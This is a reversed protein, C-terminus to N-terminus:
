ATRQWMYTVLYPQMISHAHGEGTGNIHLGHTHNGNFHCIYETRNDDANGESRLGSQRVSFHGATTVGFGLISDQGKGYFTNSRARFDGSLDTYDISGTHSHSPLEATTLTHTEAGGTDGVRYSIGSKAIGQGLLVHGAPLEVWTGGFFAKPNTPNMSLYISGVPHMANLLELKTQELFGKTVYSDMDVTITIASATDTKLYIQMLVSQIMGVTGADWFDPHAATSVAFLTEEERDYSSVYVGLTQMTYGESLDKNTLNATVKVTSQNVVEEAIVPFTQKINDLKTLSDLIAEDYATSSTRVSTIRMETQSAIARALVARGVDTITYPKWQAM